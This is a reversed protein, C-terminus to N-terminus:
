RNKRYNRYLGEPEQGLWTDTLFLDTLPELIKAIELSPFGPNTGNQPIPISRMIKIEPFKRKTETQRHIIQSLSTMRGKDDTLTECFHIVNPQYYDIAKYVIDEEQFLPILSNQTNSGATTNFVEKLNPDRWSDKSLLVSGIHDLGLEICKEAEKQEQIEYIQTIM